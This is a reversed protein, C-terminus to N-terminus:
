IEFVDKLSTTLSLVIPLYVHVGIVLTESQMMETQYEVFQM